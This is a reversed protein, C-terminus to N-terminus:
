GRTLNYREIYRQRESNYNDGNLSNRDFHHNIGMAVVNKTQQRTFWLWFEHMGSTTKEPETVSSEFKDQIDRGNYPQSLNQRNAHPTAVEQVPASYDGAFDYM